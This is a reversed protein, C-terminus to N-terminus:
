RKAADAEPPVAGPAAAGASANQEPDIGKMDVQLHSVPSTSCLSARLAHGEERM